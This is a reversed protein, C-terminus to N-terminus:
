VWPTTVMIRATSVGAVPPKSGTGSLIGYFTPPIRRISYISWSILSKELRFWLWWARNETVTLRDLSDVTPSWAILTRFYPWDFKSGPRPHWYQLYLPSWGKISSMVRCNTSRHNCLSAWAAVGWSNRSWAMPDSSSQGPMSSVSLPTPFSPSTLSIVSVTMTSLTQLHPILIPDGMLKSMTTSYNWPVYLTGVLRDTQHMWNYNELSIGLM